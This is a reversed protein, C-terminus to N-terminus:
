IGGGDGGGGEGDGSGVADETVERPTRLVSRRLLEPERYAVITVAAHPLEDHRAPPPPPAPKPVPQPAIAVPAAINQLPVAAARVRQAFRVPEAPAADAVEARSSPRSHSMPLSAAAKIPIRQGLASFM